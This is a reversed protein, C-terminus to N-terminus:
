VRAAEWDHHTIMRARIAEGPIGRRVGESLTVLNAVEVRRLGAYGLVAGLGLHSKRFALNALHAFRSWALRELAAAGVWAPSSRGDPTEEPPPADFVNEAAREVATRVDQDKLMQTFLARSIRGGRVHLPLLAEHDLGYHFKGRLVVMLHFIDVEQRYMPKFHERTSERFMEVHALLGQLYERDLVAEFFFPRARDGYIEIARKLAERFAGKPALRIFDDYSEATSLGHADLTLDRPLSVLYDQVRTETQGSFRIRILVKLNELQFRVLLWHLLHAAPGSMHGLLGSLERILDHVLLRQFEVVGRPESGPFVLQALEQLTPVQCLGTLRDGEAMHSRRGHLIAALHDLDDPM